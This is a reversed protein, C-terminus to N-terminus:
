AYPLVHPSQVPQSDTTQIRTWPKWPAQWFTSWMCSTASCASFSRFLRAPGHSHASCTTSRTKSFMRAFMKRELELVGCLVCSLVSQIKARSGAKFNDAGSPDAGLIVLVLDTARLSDKMWCLKQPSLVTAGGSSIQLRGCPCWSGYIGYLMPM